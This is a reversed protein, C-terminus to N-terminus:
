EEHLFVNISMELGEQAQRTIRLRRWRPRLNVGVDTIGRPLRSFVWVSIELHHTVYPTNFRLHEWVYSLFNFRLQRYAGHVM